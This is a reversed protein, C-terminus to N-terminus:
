DVTSRNPLSFSAEGFEADGQKQNVYKVKQGDEDYIDFCLHTCVDGIDSRTRNEFSVTEIQSVRLIVNHDGGGESDGSESPMIKECSSVVATLMVLAFVNSIMSSKM